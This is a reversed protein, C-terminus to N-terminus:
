QLCRVHNAAQAARKQIISALRRVGASPKAPNRDIPNPLTV